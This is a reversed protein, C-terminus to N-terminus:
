LGLEEILDPSVVAIRAGVHHLDVDTIEALLESTVDHLGDAAGPIPEAASMRIRNTAHNEGGVRPSRRARTPQRGEPEAAGHTYPLFPTTRASVARSGRPSQSSLRGER